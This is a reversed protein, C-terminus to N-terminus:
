VAVTREVGTESPATGDVGYERVLHIDRRALTGISRPSSTRLRHRKTQLRFWSDSRVRHNQWLSGTSFKTAAERDEAQARVRGTPSVSGIVPWQELRTIDRPIRSTGFECGVATRSSNLNGTPNAKVGHNPIAIYLKDSRDRVFSPVCPKYRDCHEHLDASLDLPTTACGLLRFTASRLDTAPARERHAPEPDCGATRFLLRERDFDRSRDAVIVAPPEVSSPHLPGM